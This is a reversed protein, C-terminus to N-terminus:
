SQGSIAFRQGFTLNLSALVRRPYLENRKLIGVLRATITAFLKVKDCDSAVGPDSCRTTPM